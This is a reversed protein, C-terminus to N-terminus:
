EIKINLANKDTSFIITLPFLTATEETSLKEDNFGMLIIKNEEAAFRYVGSDNYFDVFDTFSASTKLESFCNNFKDLSADSNECLYIPFQYYGKGDFRCSMGEYCWDYWKGSIKYIRYFSNKYTILACEDNLVEATCNRLGWDNIRDTLEQATEESVFHTADYYLAGDDQVAGKEYSFPLILKQGTTCDTAIIEEIQHPHNKMWIRYYDKAYCITSPILLLVIIVIFYVILIKWTNLKKKFKKLPDINFQEALDDETENIYKQHIKECSPCDKLHDDILQNSAESTLGEAYAPLLDCIVDCSLKM